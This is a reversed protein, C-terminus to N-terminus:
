PQYLTGLLRLRAVGGDPFIRFLIHSVPGADQIADGFEQLQDAALLGDSLIERWYDGDEGIQEAQQRDLLAGLVTCHNPYNGKFFATDVQIKRIVGPHGLRLIVWDYGPGRRRRTEWGDGMNEAPGPAILNTMDGYHMDSCALAMGGNSLAALDVLETQATNSWNCHAEGYVRLRAVGGDPFINLRVHTWDQRNDVPIFNHADGQIGTRPIIERWKTQDDPSRDSRCADLSIEPPFNGTFFRTDVDVGHITGRCLEVICYDHGAGRRRRSEWGDMWKGHDDYKDAVFIPEERRILREKPAFFDDSADLVRAGLRPQALNITHRLFDPQEAM